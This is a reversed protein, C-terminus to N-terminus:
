RPGLPTGPGFNSPPIRELLLIQTGGGPQGFAEAATGIQFRTGAPVTVESVWQASNEVPLALDRIASLQSAPPTPTLWGGVKDAGDGWVRFM